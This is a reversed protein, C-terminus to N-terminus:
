IHRDVGAFICFDRQWDPDRNYHTVRLNSLSMGCCSFVNEDNSLIDIRYEIAGNCLSYVIMGVQTKNYITRGNGKIGITRGAICLKGTLQSFYNCDGQSFVTVRKSNLLSIADLIIFQENTMISEEYLSTTKKYHRELSM